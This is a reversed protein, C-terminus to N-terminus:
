IRREYTARERATAKRASILRPVDGRTTFIVVLLRGRESYALMSWRAEGEAHTELILGGQDRFCSAAEVFAVGHKLLNAANKARDFEYEPDM